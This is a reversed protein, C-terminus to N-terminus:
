LMQVVSQHSRLQFVSKEMTVSIAAPTQQEHDGRVSSLQETLQVLSCTRAINVGMFMLDSCMVNQRLKHHVKNCM